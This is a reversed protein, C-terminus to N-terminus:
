VNVKDGSPSGRDIYTVRFPSKLRHISEPEEDLTGVDLGVRDNPNEGSYFLGVSGKLTLLICAPAAISNSNTM